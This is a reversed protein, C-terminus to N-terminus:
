ALTAELFALSRAWALAAATAAYNGQDPNLFAHGAGPYIHLDIQPHRAAIAAIQTPSVVHDTDGYHLITPCLPNLDILAPIASGYFNVQAAFPLKSAALWAWTGGTCFGSIVVRPADGAAAQIDTLIQTETLRNYSATGAAPNDYAHVIDKGLRDFLAPAIATYGANAWATCIDGIHTTLGYVAHLVVVRAKPTGAPDARWATLPHGDRATLTTRVAAM